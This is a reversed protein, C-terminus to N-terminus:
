DVGRIWACGIAWTTATAPAATAPTKAPLYRSLFSFSASGISRPSWTRATSPGALKLWSASMYLIFYRDLLHGSTRGRDLGCKGVSGFGM